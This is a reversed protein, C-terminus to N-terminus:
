AFTLRNQMGMYGHPGCVASAAPFSQKVTLNVTGSYFKHNPLMSFGTGTMSGPQITTTASIVEIHAELQTQSLGDVHFAM